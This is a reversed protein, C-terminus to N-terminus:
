KDGEALNAAVFLARYQLSKGSWEGMGTALAADRVSMSQLFRLEPKDLYVAGRDACTDGEVLMLHSGSEERTLVPDASHDPDSPPTSDFM